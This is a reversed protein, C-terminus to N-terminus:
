YMGGETTPLQEKPLRTHSIERTMLEYSRSDSESSMHKRKRVKNKRRGDTLRDTM